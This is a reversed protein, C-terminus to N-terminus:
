SGQEELKVQEIAQFRNTIKAASTHIQKVDTAAQDIHRALQDFRSQFRAFDNGLKNLHEQILHVQEKTAEDKLVAKATTLVAMLTSPSTLWVKKQWAFEVVDQHYAHIEAFIAEAPLFLIACDSTEPPLIYREAIDSIHKKIDQKFAATFKKIELDSPECQTMRQYNELPFKSDIVLKGTPEPLNLLCDAIRGNALKAQKSYQNPALVNAVLTYLQVEGFTGRSKKDTLVNQLSVVNTSLESIKKQAEDILALRKLIDGFTKVTNEFGESLKDNVRQSLKDLRSETVQTLQNLQKAVVEGHQSVAKALESRHEAHHRTLMDLLELQQKHNIEQNKYQEQLLNTQQQNLRQELSLYQEHSQNMMSLRIDDIMKQIELNSTANKNTKSISIM